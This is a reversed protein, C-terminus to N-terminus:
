VLPVFQWIKNVKGTDGDIFIKMYGNSIGYGLMIDNTGDGASSNYIPTGLKKVVDDYGSNGDVGKYNCRSKNESVSFDVLFGCIVNDTAEITIGGPFEYVTVTIATAESYEDKQSICMGFDHKVDEINRGIYNATDLAISNVDRRSLKTPSISIDWSYWADTSAKLETKVTISDSSFILTGVGANGWGDDTFKFAAVGDSIEATIHEIRAFKQENAANKVLSFTVSSGNVSEIDLVISGSDYAEWTGEYDSYDPKSSTDSTHSLGGSMESMGSVESASVDQINEWPRILCLTVGASIVVVAMVVAVIIIATKPRKRSASPSEPSPNQREMCYPCFNAEDDLQKGCYKCFKM